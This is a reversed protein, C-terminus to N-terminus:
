RRSVARLAEEFRENRCFVVFNRKIFKRDLLGEEALRRICREVTHWEIDRYWEQKYFWVRFGRYTFCRQNKESLYRDIILIYSDPYLLKSRAM